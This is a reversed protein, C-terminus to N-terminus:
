TPKDNDSGKRSKTEFLDDIDDALTRALLVADGALAAAGRSQISDGQRVILLPGVVRSATDEILQRRRGKIQANLRTQIGAQLGILENAKSLDETAGEYARTIWDLRQELTHIKELLEARNSTETM